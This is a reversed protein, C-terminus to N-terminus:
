PDTSQLGASHSGRSMMRYLRVPFYWGCCLPSLINTSSTSTFMSGESTALKRHLYLSLPSQSHMALAIRGRLPHSHLSRQKNRILRQSSTPIKPSNTSRQSVRRECHVGITMQPTQAQQCIETDQTLSCLHEHYGTGGLGCVDSVQRFTRRNPVDHGRGLWHFYISTKQLLLIVFIFLLREFNNNPNNLCNTQGPRLSRM